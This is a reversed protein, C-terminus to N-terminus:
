EDPRKGEEFEAHEIWKKLSPQGRYRVTETREDFEVVHTEVLKPLHRDRLVAGIEDPDSEYEDGEVAPDALGVRRASGRQERQSLARVARIATTASM